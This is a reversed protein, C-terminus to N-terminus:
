EIAHVVTVTITKRLSDVDNGLVANRDLPKSPATSQITQGYANQITQTPLVSSSESERIAVIKALKQGTATVIDQAKAIAETYAAKIAGQRQETTVEGVLNINLSGGSVSSDMYYGQQMALQQLSDLKDRLEDSVDSNINKGILDKEVAQEKLASTLLAIADPDSTPLQWDVQLDAKAVFIVPLDDPDVGRNNAQQLIRARVAPSPYNAPFGDNQELRTSSFQVSKEDAKMEALSVLVKQKHDKLLNIANKANDAEAQMTLTLRLKTPTVQITSSGTTQIGPNTDGQALLRGSAGCCSGVLICYITLRRVFASALPM